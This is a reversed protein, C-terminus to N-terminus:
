IKTINWITESMEKFAYCKFTFILIVRNFM